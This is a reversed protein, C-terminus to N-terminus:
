FTIQLVADIMSKFYSENKYLQYENKKPIVAWSELFKAKWVYNYKMSKQTYVMRKTSIFHVTAYGLIQRTYFTM